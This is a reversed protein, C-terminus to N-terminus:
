VPFYQVPSLVPALKEAKRTTSHHGEEGGGGGRSDRKKNLPAGTLWSAKVVQWLKQWKITPTLSLAFCEPLCIDFRCKVCVHTTFNLKLEPMKKKKLLHWHTFRVCFFCGSWRQQGHKNNFLPTKLLRVELNYCSRRVNWVPFYSFLVRSHRHGWFLLGYNLPSINPSPSVPFSRGLAACM